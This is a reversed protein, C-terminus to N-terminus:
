LTDKDNNLVNLFKEKIEYYEPFMKPLSRVSELKKIYYKVSPHKRNICREVASKTYGRSLLEDAVCLRCLFSYTDRRDSGVDVNCAKKMAKKLKDAVEFAEENQEAYISSIGLNHIITYLKALELRDLSPLLKKILVFSKSEM